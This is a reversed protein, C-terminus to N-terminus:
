YIFNLLSIFNNKEGKSGPNRSLHIDSPIIARIGDWLIMGVNEMRCTDMHFLTYDIHIVIIGRICLCERVLADILLLTWTIGM